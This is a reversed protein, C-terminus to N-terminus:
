VGVEFKNSFQLEILAENIKDRLPSQNAVALAYKRNYFGTATSTLDCPPQRLVWDATAGLLSLLLLSWVIMLPPDLTGGLPAALEGPPPPPPPALMCIEGLSYSISLIQVGTSPPPPCPPPHPVCGDRGRLDALSWSFLWIQLQMGNQYFFESHLMPWRIQLYMVYLRGEILFAYKADWRARRIGDNNSDRLGHRHSNINEWLKKHEDTQSLELTRAIPSGKLVGFKFEENLLDNTSSIQFSLSMNRTLFHYRRSM